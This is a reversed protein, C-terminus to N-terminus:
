LQNIMLYGHEDDSKLQCYTFLSHAYVTLPIEIRREVSLEIGAVELHRNENGKCQNHENSTDESVGNM